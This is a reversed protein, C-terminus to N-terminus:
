KQPLPQLDRMALPKGKTKNVLMMPWRPWQYRVAMPNLSNPWRPKLAPQRTAYKPENLAHLKANINLADSPLPGEVEVRHQLDLWGRASEM